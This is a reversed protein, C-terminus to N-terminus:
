PITIWGQLIVGHPYEYCAGRAEDAGGHNLFQDPGTMLDGAQGPRVCGGLRKGRSARLRVTSVDFIQCAQALARGLRVANNVRCEVVVERLELLGALVVPTGDLCGCLLFLM